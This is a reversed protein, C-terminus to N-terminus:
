VALNEVTQGGAAWGAGHVEPCQCVTMRLSANDNQAAAFFRISFTKGTM